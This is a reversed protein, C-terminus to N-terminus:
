RCCSRRRTQAASLDTVIVASIMAYLPFQLWLHLAIEASVAAALAARIGLQLPPIFNRSGGPKSRWRPGASRRTSRGAAWWFAPAM